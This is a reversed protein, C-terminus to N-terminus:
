KILELIDEVSKAMKIKEVNEEDEFLNAVQTIGFENHIDSSTAALVILISVGEKEEPFFVPEKLTILSYSDKRVGDEPRAHPMAVGPIIIYYPGYKKTSDIIANYYQEDIAGSKILLDTAIKVADEWNKAEQQLLISNNDILSQKLNM